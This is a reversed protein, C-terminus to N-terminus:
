ANDKVIKSIFSKRAREITEVLTHSHLVQGAAMCDM